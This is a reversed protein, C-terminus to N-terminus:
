RCEDCDCEHHHHEVLYARHFELVTVWNGEEEKQLILHRDHVGTVVRYQYSSAGGFVQRPIDIAFGEGIISAGTNSNIFLINM